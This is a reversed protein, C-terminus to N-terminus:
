VGFSASFLLNNGAVVLSHLPRSLRRSLTECTLVHTMAKRRIRVTHLYHYCARIALRLSAPEVLERCLGLLAVSLRVAVGHQIFKPLKRALTGDNALIQYHM